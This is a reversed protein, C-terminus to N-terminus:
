ARQGQKWGDRLAFDAYADRARQWGAAGVPVKAFLAAEVVLAITGFAARASIPLTASAAIDRATLSPRLFDPMREVIDEVSRRLLLHVAADYDGADALTEAEALLIRATAESPTVAAEEEVADHKKSWPWRWSFGTVERVILILIILAGLIVAGWFVYLLYPGAWRLFELLPKLWAPPAPPTPDGLQFQISGDALLRRHAAAFGPPTVPASAVSTTNTM